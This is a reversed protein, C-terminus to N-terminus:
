FESHEVYPFLFDITLDRSTMNKALATGATVSDGNHVFVENIVGTIPATPNLAERAQELSLRAQAASINARQVSSQADGSDLIYLLTGKEVLDDEEFPAEEITGSILTSVNYADAPALTGSGSVTVTIEQRGASVPQYNAGAQATGGQQLRTLVLAAALIVAAGAILRRRRPKKVKPLSWKRRGAEAQPATEEPSTGRDEMLENKM